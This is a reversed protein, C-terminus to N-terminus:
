TYEARFDWPYQAVTADSSVLRLTARAAGSTDTSVVEWPLNRAFGHQKMSGSQGARAWADGALKGPSPFLVPNGGRVNASLDEFTARDLYFLERGGVALRTLMGGRSPALVAVSEGAHLSLTPIAGDEHRIASMPGISCS